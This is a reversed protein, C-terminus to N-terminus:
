PRSSSIMAMIILTAMVIVMATTFRHRAAVWIWRDVVLGLEPPDHGAQETLFAPLDNFLRSLLINRGVEEDRPVSLFEDYFQFPSRLPALVAHNRQERLGCQFCHMIGSDDGTMRDGDRNHACVTNRIGNGLFRLLKYPFPCRFDCNSHQVEIAKSQERAM